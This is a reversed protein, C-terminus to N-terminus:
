AAVLLAAVHQFTTIMALTSEAGCNQNRGWAHLGDYGVSHLENTMPIRSDNDGAFWAACLSITDLWTAESTIDHATRCADALSAIEIPQQDFSPRPEGSAWGDVPTVSIHGDRTETAVLWRAMMMGTDLWMDNRLLHGAHMLVQPFAGNAYRLRAEPWPWADTLTGCIQRAAYALLDAAPLHDREYHLVEAAGLAAFATAHLHPSRLVCARGFMGLAASRLEPLNRAAAGFAWLGRGWCDEVGPSDTWHGSTNMRNRSRGDSAQASAILRLYQPALAAVEPAPNRERSVAVLGRANDDVCYGHASRPVDYEAHEFLGRDDTLRLLHEFSYNTNM